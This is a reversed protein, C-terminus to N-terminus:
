HLSAPSNLLYPAAVRLATYFYRIAKKGCEFASLIGPVKQRERVPEHFIDLQKKAANLRV